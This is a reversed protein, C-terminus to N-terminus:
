AKTSISSWHCAALHVGPIKPSIMSPAPGALTGSPTMASIRQRSTLPSISSSSGGNRRPARILIKCPGKLPCKAIKASMFGRSRTSIRSCSSPPSCLTVSALFSMSTTRQRAIEGYHEDRTSSDMRRVNGAAGAAEGACRPVSGGKANAPVVAPTGLGRGQVARREKVKRKRQVASRSARGAACHSLENGARDPTRKCDRANGTRPPQQASGGIRQGRLTKASADPGLLGCSTKIHSARVSGLSIVALGATASISRRKVSPRCHRLGHHDHLVVLEVHLEEVIQQLSIAVMGDARAVADLCEIEGALVTGIQDQHVNLQRFNGPELHGLPELLVGLELSNRHDRHGGKRHPAVLLADPFGTALGIQRLRDRHGLEDFCGGSERLRGSCEPREGRCRLRRGSARPVDFMSSSALEALTLTQGLVIWEIGAHDRREDSDHPRTWRLVVANASFYCQFMPAAPIDVAWSAQKAPAFRSARKGGFARNRALATGPHHRDQPRPIVFVRLIRITSSSESSRSASTWCSASCSSNSDIATSLPVLPICVALAPCISRTIMSTPSGSTSPRSATRMRRLFPKLAGIMM